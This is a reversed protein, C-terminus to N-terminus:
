GDKGPKPTFFHTERIYGKATNAVGWRPGRKRQSQALGKPGGETKGSVTGGKSSPPKERKGPKPRTSAQAEKL